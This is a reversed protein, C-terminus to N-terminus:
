PAGEGSLMSKAAEVHERFAAYEYTRTWDIWEILEASESTRGMCDLGFQFVKGERTVVIGYEFERADSFMEVLISSAPDVGRGELVQRLGPFFEAESERLSRTLEAIRERM